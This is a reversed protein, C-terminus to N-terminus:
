CLRYECEEVLKNVNMLYMCRHGEHASDFCIFQGDRDWRPHLDCRVEGQFHFPSFFQGLVNLNGNPKYILLKREAYKDPYTDTLLVNSKPNFTPHGDENLIDSGFVKRKDTMDEYLHYRKGSDKHYSYVLLELDNKWTYHSVMGDNALLHLSKGDIDSTFLRSFRKGNQVWLHFFMFRNGSPNFALHNVYHTADEMTELPQISRLEELNIILEYKGTSLNLRWVGDTSPSPDSETLDPLNNYGYGPRLRHLRSFNLTIAWSGSKDVDYIPAKYKRIIEKTNVNQVVSGYGGNVMTNYIILENENEPLWQLRCSQQWCWTSTVGIQHFTDNNARDFYGVVLEDEPRPSKNGLPAVLGLIKSNDLSFPTKDYYGFFTQRGDFSLKHITSGFTDRRVISQHADRLLRRTCMLSHNTFNLIYKLSEKM